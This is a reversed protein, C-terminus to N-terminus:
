RWDYIAGRKIYKDVKIYGLTTLKSLPRYELKQNMNSQIMGDPSIMLYSGCMQDATEFTPREGNRLIIDSHKEVFAKFEEETPELFAADENEGELILVKFIKWRHPSLESILEHMNENCNLSTITTNIKLKIGFSQILECIRKTNKVHNGYGRGLCVETKEIGSDISVGIWDLYKEFVNLNKENIMSGNTQLTTVFGFDNSLKLIQEFDPHLQPEGGVINLKEIGLEKLKQLIKTQKEISRIEPRMEKAFCFKCKYNCNSTIHWNASRIMNAAM